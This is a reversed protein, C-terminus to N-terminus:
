GVGICMMVLVWKGGSLKLEFVVIGVICVGFMGFFYGLVIVGGNFNVWLDDDVVGFCWMMVFGQLVFVENLEIVDFDVVIMGLCILLKELVFVFGIGMVCLVVGVIVGGLVWVIFMLGYKKVVVEFVFILVVVGDNVGSVNGVIVIGEFWVILCLKVLVDLMIGVCFYEDVEVVKLDGKCQLIIVFVIEQVLCGNFMVVVVKEQFRFVFVDQDVCNIDYDDVVNEVIELMFDVGYVVKM